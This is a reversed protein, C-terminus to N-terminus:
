YTTSFGQGDFKDIAIVLAFSNPDFTPEVWHMNSLYSYAQFGGFLGYSHMQIDLTLQGDYFVYVAKLASLKADYEGGDDATPM